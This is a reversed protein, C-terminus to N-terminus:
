ARRRSVAAGGAAVLDGARELTRYLWRHLRAWWPRRVTTAFATRPADPRGSSFIAVRNRHSGSRTLALLQAPEPSLACSHRELFHGLGPKFAQGVHDGEHQGIVEFASRVPLDLDNAIQDGRGMRREGLRLNVGFRAGPLLPSLYHAVGAVQNDIAREVEEAASSSGDGSLILLVLRSRLPCAEDRFVAPWEGGLEYASM